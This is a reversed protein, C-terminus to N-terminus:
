RLSHTDFALKLKELQTEASRGLDTNIKEDCDNYYIERESVTREINAIAQDPPFEKGHMDVMIEVDWNDHGRADSCEEFIKSRRKKFSDYIGQSSRQFLVVYSIARLQSWNKRLPFGPGLSIIMPNAEQSWIGILAEEAKTIWEIAGKRGHTIYLKYINDFKGGGAEAIWTLLQDDSDIVRAGFIKRGLSTKGTCSFGMFLLHRKVNATKQITM